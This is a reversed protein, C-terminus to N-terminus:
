ADPDQRYWYRTHCSSCNEDIAAALDSTAGTDRQRVAAILATAQEALDRAVARFGYPDADIMAQIQERSAIGPPLDESGLNEPGGAVFIQAEAMRRSEAQLMLAAERITGWDEATMLTPDLAGEEDIASNTVDWIMVAAPNIGDIM